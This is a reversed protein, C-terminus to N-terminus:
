MWEADAGGVWIMCDLMDDCESCSWRDEKSLVTFNYIIIVVVVFRPEGLWKHNSIDGSCYPYLPPFAQLVLLAWDDAVRGVLKRMQAKRDMHNDQSSLRQWGRCQKM